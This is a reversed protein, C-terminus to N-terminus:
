DLIVCVQGLEHATHLTVFREWAAKTGIRAWRTRAATVMDASPVNCLKRRAKPAKGSGQVTVRPGKVAFM